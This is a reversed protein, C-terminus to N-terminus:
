HSRYLKKLPPEEHAWTWACSTYSSRSPVPTLYAFYISDYRKVMDADYSDSVIAILVNLMVVVVVLMFVIALWKTFTTPFNGDDYNGVVM